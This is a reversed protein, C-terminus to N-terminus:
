AAAELPPQAHAGLLGKAAAFEANLVSQGAAGRVTNHGLLVFRLDRGDPSVRIRGVSVAMGAGRGRDRRPQPRDAGDLVEIPCGPASPLSAVEPPGRFGSLALRVEEPSAPRRLRAHVCELHGDRVPVRTCTAHIAVDEDQVGAPGLTGLTKRPEAALKEEEGAIFPVVNDVVDLASVGPYGAGSLGQLTAVDVRDVGFRRHLPALALCLIIASCNGNAVIWGPGAQRHVLELHSPNVEPVLLPVDADLRHDRANTFVKKGQAALRSEIPGALGGPLASFVLAVDSAALEELSTIRLGAVREPIPSDLTWSAAEAYRRGVSGKGVVAVVEFLPHGELVSVFRQGVAGTAGLVACPVRSM